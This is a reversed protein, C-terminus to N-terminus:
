KMGKIFATICGSLVMQATEPSYTEDKLVASYNVVGFAIGLIGWLIIGIGIIVIISWLIKTRRNRVAIQRNINALERVIAQENGDSVSITGLLDCVDVEFVEALKTVTDADPVSIGKEWKSVTQRAVHVQSALEEQTFGKQKRLKKINENLM